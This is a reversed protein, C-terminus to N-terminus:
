SCVQSPPLALTKGTVQPHGVVQGSSLLLSNWGIASADCGNALSGHRGALLGSPEPPTQGRVTQTYRVPMRLPGVQGLTPLASTGSM